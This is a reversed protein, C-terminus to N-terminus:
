DIKLISVKICVYVMCFWCLYAKLIEKTRYASVAVWLALVYPGYKLKPLQVLTCNAVM